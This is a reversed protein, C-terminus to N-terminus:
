YLPLMIYLLRRHTGVFCAISPAANLHYGGGREDPVCHAVAAVTVATPVVLVTSCLLMLLELCAAITYAMRAIMHQPGCRTRGSCSEAQYQKGSKVRLSWKSFRQTGNCLANLVFACMLIMCAGVKLKLVLVKEIHAIIHMDFLTVSLAYHM